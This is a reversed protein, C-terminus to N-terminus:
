AWLLAMIDPSPLAMRHDSFAAIIALTFPVTSFKECIPVKIPVYLLLIVPKVPTPRGPTVPGPPMEPTTALSRTLMWVDEFAVICEELNDVIPVLSVTEIV